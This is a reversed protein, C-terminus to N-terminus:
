LMIMKKISLKEKLNKKPKCNAVTERNSKAQTTITKTIQTFIPM